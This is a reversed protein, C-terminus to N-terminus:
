LSGTLALLNIVGSVAAIAIVAGRLKLLALRLMGEAAHMGDLNTRKHVSM